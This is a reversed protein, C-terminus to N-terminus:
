AATKLGEGRAPSPNPLPPHDGEKGGIALEGVMGYLVDRRKLVDM